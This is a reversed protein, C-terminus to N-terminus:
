RNLAKLADAYQEKFKNKYQYTNDKDVTAYTLEGHSIDATSIEPDYVERGNKDHNYIIIEVENLTFPQKILFQQLEDNNIIQNLLEQSSNILLERLEEKTFSQKTNFCLTVKQIPGGPMAVGVGCPRLQYKTKISNAAEGLTKNILQEGRSPQYVQTNSPMFSVVLILLLITFSLLFLKM